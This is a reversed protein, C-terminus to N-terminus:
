ENYVAIQVLIELNKQSMRNRRNACRINCQSFLREVAGSSAPIALVELILKKFLVPVNEADWFTFPDVLVPGSSLYQSMFTKWDSSRSSSM